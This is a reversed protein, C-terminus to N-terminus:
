KPLVNSIKSDGLFPNHDRMTVNYRIHQLVEARFRRIAGGVPCWTLDVIGCFDGQTEQRLTVYVRQDQHTVHHRITSILDYIQGFEVHSM